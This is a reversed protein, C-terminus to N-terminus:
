VREELLKEAICLDLPRTIKFNNYEGEILYVPKGAAEVVTAEDTFAANYEQKYAELLIKSQFTQPTQIIELKIETLLITLLVKM